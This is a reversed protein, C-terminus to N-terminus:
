ILTIRQLSTFDKCVDWHLTGKLFVKYVASLPRLM